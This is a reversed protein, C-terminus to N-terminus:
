ESLELPVTRADFKFFGDDMAPRPAAAYEAASSYQYARGQARARLCAQATRPQRLQQFAQLAGNWDSIETLARALLFGDEIAMSAGQGLFPLIPHAADGIILARGDQWHSLPAHDFLAWKMLHESPAAAIIAQISPHWAQFHSLFESPSSQHTWGEEAWDSSEVIGVCNLLAGGRVFYRTFIAGRGMVTASGFAGIEPLNASPILSRFAIQGTFEAAAGPHMQSRIASRVGDAGILLAGTEVRGRTLLVRIANEDQTYGLVESDVEIPIALARAEEVLLAHFDARHIQHFWSVGNADVASFGDLGAIVVDLSEYDLVAQKAPLDARARLKEGLGLADLIKTPSPGISLGAGVDGLASAKELIRVQHGRQKLSIAAVLGAIGAGAILITGTDM